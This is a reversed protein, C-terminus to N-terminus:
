QLKAQQQQAFYAAILPQLLKRGFSKRVSEGIEFCLDLRKLPILELKGVMYQAMENSPFYIQQRLNDLSGDSTVASLVVNCVQPSEAAARCISENLPIHITSITYPAGSEAKFTKTDKLLLTRPELTEEPPSAAQAEVFLENFSSFLGNKPDNRNFGHKEKLLRIAELDVDQVRFKLGMSDWQIVDWAMLHRVGMKSVLLSCCSAAPEILKEFPLTKAPYFGTDQRHDVVGLVELDCDINLKDNQDVLFIGQATRFFKEHQNRFLLYQLPDETKLHKRLVHLVEGRLAVLEKKADVFPVFSMKDNHATLHHALLVASCISDLDGSENGLVAIYDLNGTEAHELCRLLFEKLSGLTNM